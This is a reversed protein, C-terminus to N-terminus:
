SKCLPSGIRGTEAPRFSRPFTAWFLFIFSTAWLYGGVQLGTWAGVDRILVEIVWSWVLALAAFSSGRLWKLARPNASDRSLWFPSALMLLNALTLLAIHIAQWEGRQTEPWFVATASLAACQWGWFGCAPLGFSLAFMAWAAWALPHHWDNSGARRFENKLAAPPGLQLTALEFAQRVNGGAKVRREIEERLHNELEELPVPTRLGAALMQRRWDTIAAELDFM